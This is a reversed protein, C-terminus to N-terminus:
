VVVYIAAELRLLILRCDHEAGRPETPQARVSFDHLSTTKIRSKVLNVKRAKQDRSVSCWHIIMWGNLVPTFM